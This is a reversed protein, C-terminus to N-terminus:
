NQYCTGGIITHSPSLSGQYYLVERWDSCPFLAIDARLNTDLIGRDNLNLAQAARCTIGAWTEAMTLHQECGLLAAQTLLDGMPASGPNWDSAIALTAGNDLIMRAPPFKHGLGLTAGPLVVCVVNKDALAKVELPSLVELHDASTASLEAALMAGGMSFQNAHLTISFGMSQCTRLYEKAMPVSFAGEEVFIDVRQALHNDKLQPLLHDIIANLYIEPSSFEPPLTHAALCTPIIQLPHKKSVTLINKLCRLEHEVSLGYGSKVECTAIGRKLLANCRNIMLETLEENTANRTARMTNLIGGGNSAIEQYTAGSLRQSYEKCRNGAWCLHTHADILAPFGVTSHPLPYVEKAESVLSEFSGISSIISDACLVGANPIVELCSDQIPGKASLGKLTVLQAFPGYLIKM